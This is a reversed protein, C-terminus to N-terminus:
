NKKVSASPAPPLPMCQPDLLARAPLGLAVLLRFRSREYDTLDGGYAELVDNLSRISDLVELPRGEGGRIRLFNLRVSRFVVGAPQGSEDYLSARTRWVRERSRLVQEQAQVVQSAVRDATLELRLVSQEHLARQERVEALNGFGLNQLRWVLSVDFDTRPGMNAIQGSHGFVLGGTRTLGVVPPGGGFEGANYSLIANPLLPRYQATRLRGLAARVLARQEALDPRNRLAEEVLAVIDQEAWTDGPLPMPVRFDELPWLLVTPDQHLLRALEAMAVRLDQLAASREELRREVEVEVRAQDSPLAAGNAVFARILPLLGPSNGRLEIRQGSTLFDLTEDIRAVRRRARLIAFYADAVALLTDNTVRAAGAEAAFVVARAVPPGFLAESLGFSLNPGGGVFLSDRNVNIVNGETRQIHGTHYVYNAGATANPLIAVDARLRAAQVQEVIARAQAIDLNALAAVRLADLLTVAV